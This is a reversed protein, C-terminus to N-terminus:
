VTTAAPLLKKGLEAGLDRLRGTLGKLTNAFGGATREADGQAFTSKELILAARAQIKAAQSVQNKNKALGLEVAKLAVETENLFINMSRLSEANGILGGKLKALADEPDLNLFSALDQSLVTFQKALDIADGEDVATKFLLNLELSAQKLINSSRNITKRTEKAWRDVSKTASGFSFAFASEMEEADSGLKLLLTGLGAVGIGGFLSVNKLAGAAKGFAKAIIGGAKGGAKAMRGLAKTVSNSNKAVDKLDGKLDETQESFKDYDKQGVIKYIVETILQRVSAM